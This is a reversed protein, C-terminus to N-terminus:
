TTIAGGASTWANIGGALDFLQTNRVGGANYEILKWREDRVM